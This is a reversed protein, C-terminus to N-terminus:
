LWLIDWFKHTLSFQMSEESTIERREIFKLWNAAGELNNKRLYSKESARSAMKTIDNPEAKPALYALTCFNSTYINM